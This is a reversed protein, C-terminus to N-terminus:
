DSDRAVRGGRLNVIEAMIALAIEAPTRRGSDLGIPAYVRRFKDPSSGREATADAARLRAVTLRPRRRWGM